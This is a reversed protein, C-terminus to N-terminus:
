NLSGAGQGGLSLSEVKSGLAFRSIGPCTAPIRHTGGSLLPEVLCIPSLPQMSVLCLHPCPGLHPSLGLGTLVM